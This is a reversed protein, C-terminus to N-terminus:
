SSRRLQLPRGTELRAIKERLLENDMTSEGLKARLRAVEHDRTDHPRKTLAEQGGALFADRWAALRVAPVQLERSLLDLDDGRLLRLVVETKKQASFRVPKPRNHAPEEGTARRGRETSVSETDAHTTM